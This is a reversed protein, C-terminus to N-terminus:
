NHKKDDGNREADSVTMSDSAHKYHDAMSTGDLATALAPTLNGIVKGLAKRPGINSKKMNNLRRQVNRCPLYAFCINKVIRSLIDLTSIEQSTKKGSITLAQKSPLDPIVLSTVDNTKAESSASLVARQIELVLKTRSIILILNRWLTIMKRLREAVKDLGNRAFLGLDKSRVFRTTIPKTKIINSIRTGLELAEKLIAHLTVEGDIPELSRVDCEDDHTILISQVVVPSTEKRYVARAFINEKEFTDNETTEWCTSAALITQGNNVNAQRTSTRDDNIERTPAIPEPTKVVLSNWCLAVIVAAVAGGLLLLRARKKRRQDDDRTSIGAAVVAIQKLPDNHFATPRRSSDVIISASQKTAGRKTRSLDQDSRALPSTTWDPPTLFIGPAQKCMNEVFERGFYRQALHLLNRPPLREMYVLALDFIEQFPVRADYCTSLSSSVISVAEAGIMKDHESVTKIGEDHLIFDTDVSNESASSEDDNVSQEDDSIYGDGPQYKWGVM